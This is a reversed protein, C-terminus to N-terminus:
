TRLLMDSHWPTMSGSTLSWLSINSNLCQLSIDFSSKPQKIEVKLSGILRGQARNAILNCQQMPVISRNEIIGLKNFVPTHRNVTPSLSRKIGRLSDALASGTHPGNVDKWKNNDLFPHQCKWFWVVLTAKKFDQFHKISRTRGEYDYSYIIYDVVRIKTAMRKTHLFNYKLM